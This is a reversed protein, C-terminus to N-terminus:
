FKPPSKVANRRGSDRFATTEQLGNQQKQRWLGQVSNNGAARKAAEAALIGFRGYGPSNPEDPHLPRSKVEAGPYALAIASFIRGRRHISQLLKSRSYGNCALRVISGDLPM